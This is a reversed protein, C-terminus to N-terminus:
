NLSSNDIDADPIQMVLMVPSALDAGHPATIEYHSGSEPEYYILNISYDLNFAALVLQCIGSGCSRLLYHLSITEIQKKLWDYNLKSLAAENMRFLFGLRSSNLTVHGFCYPTDAEWGTPNFLAKIKQLQEDNKIIGAIARQKEDADKDLGQHLKSDSKPDIYHYELQELTYGLSIEKKLTLFEYDDPELKLGEEIALLASDTFGFHYRLKAAQLWGWPYDPQEAVAKEAYEMAADPKGCYMLAVSYRYYWAGCGHARAETHQMWQITQYYAPYIDMNNYAFGYWLAIELDEEAEQRTFRNESIGKEIFKDLYDAMKYFYGSSGEDFAELAAVDADTLIRKGGTKHAKTDASSM